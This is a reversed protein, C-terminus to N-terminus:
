AALGSRDAPEPSTDDTDLAGYIHELAAVLQERRSAYTPGDIKGRRHHGELKVLDQLLKERRALLRKREGAADVSPAPRWAFWLGALLVVGALTVAVLRPTQSHHPLGVITLQLPQGVPIPGGAAAIYMREAVPMEQQREVQPSIVRPEGVKQVIVGLHELAAPFPQEIRIQGTKAPMAFAVSIFTNGPPFPGQVSVRRGASVARPAGEMVTTNTAERPTDFVFPTPPDVPTAAPNVIDLLYYVRVSEDDPEIVFRTEGGLSVVGPAAPAAARAAREKDTAVLMLRIGGQSPSPFEMSELLEGDVIAVAKVTVGAALPGFQARGQEDTTVTQPTGNVLLDVPHGAINNSLAGRILRVSITRDPLDTVPRPIGAMERPDPMAIQAHVAGQLLLSALVSAFVFRARTM